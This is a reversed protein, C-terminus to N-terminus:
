HKRGEQGNIVIGRYSEVLYRRADPLLAPKPTSKRNGKYVATVAV